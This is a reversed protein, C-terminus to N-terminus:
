HATRNERTLGCWTLTHYGTVEGERVWFQVADVEAPHSDALKGGWIWSVKTSSHGTVPGGWTPSAVDAMTLRHIGDAMRNQENELEKLATFNMNYRNM